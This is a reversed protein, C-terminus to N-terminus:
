PAAGAAEATTGPAEHGSAAPRYAAASDFRTRARRSPGGPRAGNGKDDAKGTIRNAVLPEILVLALVLWLLLDWVGRSAPSDPLLSSLSQSASGAGDVTRIQWRGGLAAVDEALVATTSETRPANVALRERLGSGGALTSVPPNQITYFGPTSVGAAPLYAVSEGGAIKISAQMRSADPRQVQIVRNADWGGRLLVLEQGAAHEFEAAAGGALYGVMHNILPIFARRLPLNTWRPQPEATFLIVRGRGYSREVILPVGREMSAVVWAERPAVAFAQYISVGALAGRLTGKFRQLIPHDLQAELIHMPELADEAGVRSRIEAPLLGHLPRTPAGMVENYFAADVRGGLFIALGGGAQVFKEVRELQALPLDRLNCLLLVRCRELRASALEDPKIIDAEVSEGEADVAQLAAKLYFAAPKERWAEVDGDVVLVPLRPNVLVTAYLVNDAPLDDGHEVRLRLRQEGAKDFAVPIREVQPSGAILEVARRAIEQDNVELVLQVNVTGAGHNVLRVRLLNPQGVVAPGQSLVLQDATVNNRAPPDLRVLTTGVAHDPQPWEGAPWDSAQLDTLILVSRGRQEAGKLLAATRQLAARGDGAGAVLPLSELDKLLGAIDRTLEIGTRGERGLVRGTLTVVAARDGSSLGNLMDAALRRAKELRSVPKGTDRSDVAQMSLSDDLVIVVDRSGARGSFGALSMIPRALALALLICAGMRLLLLLIRRLRLRRQSRIISQTFFRNTSFLMVTRQRRQYLHLILPVAATLAFLLALPSLLTM